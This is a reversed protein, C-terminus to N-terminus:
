AETRLPPGAPCIRDNAMESRHIVGRAPIWKSSRPVETSKGGRGLRVV